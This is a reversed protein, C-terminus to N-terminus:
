SVQARTPRCCKSSKSYERLVADLAELFEATYRQSISNIHKGPTDESTNLWRMVTKSVDVASALVEDSIPAVEKHSYRTYYALQPSWHSDEPAFPRSHKKSLCLKVGDSLSGPEAAAASVNGAALQRLRLVSMVCAACVQSARYKCFEVRLVVVDLLYVLIRTATFAWFASDYFEANSPPSISFLSHLPSFGAAEAFRAVFDAPTPHERIGAM